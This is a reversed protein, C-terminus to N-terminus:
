FRKFDHEDPTPATGHAPVRSRAPTAQRAAPAARRATPAHRDAEALRFFTMLEQLQAAQSGLEEATAALEESASANQQTAQNLQGMAGNIKGVRFSQEQSSSAIEQVLGSTKQISPVMEGLLTGAREALKVSESAVTGIEQAALQSHEALKRVEAAVVAFGKGHEGARAAEISANLALLNTQHAIDDVIGIKNAITKMAEVTQGVAEGGEVAQRSALSAMDDTSRANDNNRAISAAMQGISETSEEVSAAQESSSQSLSQATALVQRSANSLKDAATRVEGIIQALKGVMTRMASMLQGMEDKSQVDIHVSLNGEALERAALAAGAIPRTISRSLLTSVVVALGLVALGVITITTVNTVVIRNVSAVARAQEDQAATVGKEGISRQEAVLNKLRGNLEISQRTIDLVEALRAIVGGEGFLLQHTKALAASVEDLVKLDAKAHSASLTKRLKAILGDASSFQQRVEVTIEKLNTTNRAGFLERGRSNIEFCASILEGTLTVTEGAAASEKLSNDHSKNEIAYHNTALTIEQEIETLAGSLQGGIGQVSQEYAQKQEDTATKSIIPARQEILGAGQKRIEAVRAVITKVGPESSSVLPNKAFESLATDFRSRLLLLAKRGEAKQIEIFTFNMDKLSDRIQTLNMLKETIDRAKDSASSLQRSSGKQLRNMSGTLQNLQKDVEALQTKMAGDAARAAQEATLRSGTNAIIQRALESLGDVKFLGTSDTGALARLDSARQALETESDQTAKEAATFESADTALTVKLLNSTHEQMTRQLEITKLQYPTSRETLVQLKGQIFRMGVLSVGGIVTIGVITLLAFLLLKSRIKV